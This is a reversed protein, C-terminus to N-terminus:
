IPNPAPRHNQIQASELINVPFSACSDLDTAPFTHEPFGACGLNVMNVLPGLSRIRDGLQGGSEIPGIRSPSCTFMM